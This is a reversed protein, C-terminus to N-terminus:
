RDGGEGKEGRILRIALEPDDTVLGDVGLELAISMERRTNVTWVYLKKGAAAAQAAAEGTLGSLRISYGDVYSLESFNLPMKEGIYVTDLRPALEKSQQLLRLDSCALICTEELGAGRIVKVTEEVLRQGSGCECKVEIMLRIKGKAAQAMKKLTPVPEGTYERDYWGGADLKRITAYDTECVRRNLGATRDLSGDHIVVAVGDKTMQVDIEAMDAGASISKKLAALTNEPALSAGARHAIVQTDKVAVAAVSREPERQGGAASAMLVTTTLAACLLLLVLVRRRRQGSVKNEPVIREKM